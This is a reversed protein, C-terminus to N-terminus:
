ADIDSGLILAILKNKEEATLEGGKRAIATSITTYASELHEGEDLLYDIDVDLAKAVNVVIDMRPRRESHLHRSISSETIGSLEALQKQNINRQKMLELVKEKWSM